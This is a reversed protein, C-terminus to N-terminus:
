WTKQGFRRSYTQLHTNNLSISPVDLPTKLKCSFWQRWAQTAMTIVISLEDFLIVCCSTIWLAIFFILISQFFYLFFICPFCGELWVFCKVQLPGERGGLIGSMVKMQMVMLIFHHRPSSRLERGLLCRFGTVSNPVFYCMPTRLFAKKLRFQSGKFRARFLQGIHQTHSLDLVAVTKDLATAHTIRKVINGFFYFLINASM